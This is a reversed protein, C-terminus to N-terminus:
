ALESIVSHKADRLNSLQSTRRFAPAWGSPFREAVYRKNDPGNHGMIEQYSKRKGKLRQLKNAHPGVDEPVYIYGGTRNPSREILQPPRPPVGAFFFDYQEGVDGLQLHAMLLWAFTLLEGGNSLQAAHTEAKSKGASYILLMTWMDRIEMLTNVSTDPEHVLNFRNCNLNRVRSSKMSTTALDVLEQLSPHYCKLLHAETFIHFCVIGYGFSMNSNHLLKKLPGLNPWRQEDTSSGYSRLIIGRRARLVMAKTYLDDYMLCLEIELLKQSHVKKIKFTLVDRCRKEIQHLTHGAFLQRIGPASHLAFSVLDFYGVNVEDEKPSKVRDENDVNDVESECLKSFSAKTSDDEDIDGVKPFSEKDKNGTSGHIKKLEGYMLALTREGYKIIGAVFVLVGPILILLYHLDVSKWFVYLTLAVQVGLNLLHMMWLHNDEIAFATITDQGGLHMLLFPAWIFSLPHVERLTGKSSTVDQHRSVYGLAYLAVLDAGLYAVWMCFRLLPRTSCRRLGGTFFLFMQLTFSLIMLLQIEWDSWLQVISEM